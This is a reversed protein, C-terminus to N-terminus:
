VGCVGTEPLYLEVRRAAEWDNDLAAVISRVQEYGTAMLFTPARGYSKAGVIYFNPEPQRLELEGHARVTGCSHVNPDILTTLEPVCELAPDTFYRLERLFSFDPRSGTNVIIKDVNTITHNQLENFGKIEIKFNKKEFSIIRFPNFVTVQGSQVLNHVNLGLSGREPLADNLGGGLLKKDYNRRLIWLISTNPYLTKLKQLELISHIASHGSGVVAVSKNGFEIEINKHSFNPINYHFHEYLQKEGLAFDGSSGAPNPNGWTGTADIIAGAFLRKVKGHQIYEIEFPFSERGATKGKDIGFRHIATVTSNLHLFPKIIPLNSLPRLYKQIFEGGTPLEFSNPAIWNYETLLDKADKDINYEWPSFMKVNEWKSLHHGVDNGKELIIFSKNRHVLQAAAAMGVPGAGIIATPLWSSM